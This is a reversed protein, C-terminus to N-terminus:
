ANKGTPRGAKHAGEPDSVGRRVTHALRAAQPTVGLMRGIETWTRGDARLQMVVDHRVQDLADQIETIRELTASDVGEDIAKTAFRRLCRLLM